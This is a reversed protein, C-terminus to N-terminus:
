IDAIIEEVGRECARFREAANQLYSINKETENIQEDLMVLDAQVGKEFQTCREGNWMTRLTELEGALVDRDKKMEALLGALEAATRKLDTYRNRVEGARM